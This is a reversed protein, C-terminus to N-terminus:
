TSGFWRKRVRAIQDPLIGAMTALKKWIKLERFWGWLLCALGIVATLMLFFESGGIYDFIGRIDKSSVLSFLTAFSGGILGLQRLFVGILPLWPSPMVEIPKEVPIAEAVAAGTASVNNDM